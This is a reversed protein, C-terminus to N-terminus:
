SIAARYRGAGGDNRGNMTCSLKAVSYNLQILPTESDCLQVYIRSWGAILIAEAPQRALEGLAHDCRHGMCPEQV